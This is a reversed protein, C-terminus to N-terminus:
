AVGCLAKLALSMHDSASIISHHLAAPLCHAFPVATHRAFHKHCPDNACHIESLLILFDETLSLSYLVLDRTFLRDLSVLAQLLAAM